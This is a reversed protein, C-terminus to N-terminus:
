FFISAIIKENDDEVYLQKNVYVANKNNVNCSLCTLNLNNVHSCMSRKNSSDEYMHSQDYIFKNNLKNIINDSINLPADIIVETDDYLYIFSSYEIDFPYLTIITDSFILKNL